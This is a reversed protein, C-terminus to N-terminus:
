TPTGSPGGIQTGLCILEEDKTYGVENETGREVSCMVRILTLPDQTADKNAM